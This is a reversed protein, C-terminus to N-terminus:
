DPTAPYVTATEDVVRGPLRPTDHMAIAPRFQVEIPEM